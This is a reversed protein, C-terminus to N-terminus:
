LTIRGTKKFNTQSRNWYPCWVDLLNCGDVCGYQYGDDHWAHHEHQKSPEQEHETAALSVLM